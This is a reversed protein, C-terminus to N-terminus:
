FEFPSSYNSMKPEVFSESVIQLNVFNSYDKLSNRLNEVVSTNKFRKGKNLGETISISKGGDSYNGKYIMKNEDTQVLIRGNNYFYASFKGSTVFVYQSGDALTGYFNRKETGFESQLNKAVSDLVAVQSPSTTSPRTSTSTSPRTSGTGGTSPRTGETGDGIDMDMDTSSDKERKRLWFYAGTAIGGLAIASVVGVWVGKNSMKQRKEKKFSWL